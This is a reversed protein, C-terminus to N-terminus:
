RQFSRYWYGFRAVEEFGCRRYVGEGMGTALLVIRSAGREAAWRSSHDVLAAGIGRGRYAELVDVGHLGACESGLFTMTAGVAVDGCWAVLAHCRNGTLRLLSSWTQFAARRLPTTLPGIFPHPVQFQEPDEVPRITIGIPLRHVDVPSSLDRLMAPFHKRCRLGRDRLLQPLTEPTAAATVWLGMGRQHQRYRGVLVDLRAAATKAALRIMVGANSWASGPHVVWVIDPDDHLEVGPAVVQARLWDAIHRELLLAPGVNVGRTDCLMKWRPSSM